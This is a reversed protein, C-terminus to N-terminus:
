GSSGACREARSRRRMSRMSRLARPSTWRYYECFARASLGEHKCRLLALLARGAVDPREAGEAFFAPIGARLLAEELQARYASGRRMLVAMRDFRTRCAGGHAIRSGSRRM